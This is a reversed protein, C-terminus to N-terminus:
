IPGIPLLSRGLISSTLMMSFYPRKGFFMFGFSGKNREKEDTWAMIADDYLFTDVMYFSQAFM